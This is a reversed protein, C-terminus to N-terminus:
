ASKMVDVIANATTETDQELVLESFIEELSPLHMLNRLGEVTDHAAIRGKRLIM